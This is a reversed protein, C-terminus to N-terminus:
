GGIGPELNQYKPGCVLALSENGARSMLRAGLFVDPGVSRQSSQAGVVIADVHQRMCPCIHTYRYSSAYNGVHSHATGTDKFFCMEPERQTAFLSHDSPINGVPSM